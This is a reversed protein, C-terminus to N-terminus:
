FLSEIKNIVSTPSVSSINGVDTQKVGFQSGWGLALNPFDNQFGGKTKKNKETESEDSKFEKSVMEILYPNNSMRM